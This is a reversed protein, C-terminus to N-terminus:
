ESIESTWGLEICKNYITPYDIGDITLSMLVRETEAKNWGGHPVAPNFLVPADIQVSDYYDPHWDGQYRENTEQKFQTEKSAINFEYGHGNQAPYNEIGFYKGFFADSQELDVEVPINIAVFRGRDSHPSSMYTKPIGVYFEILMGIEGLDSFYDRFYDWRKSKKGLSYHGMYRSAQRYFNIDPNTEDTSHDITNWINKAETVVDTFKDLKLHTKM